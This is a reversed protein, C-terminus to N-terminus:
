ILGLVKKGLHKRRNTDPLTNFLIKRSLQEMKAINKQLARRNAVAQGLSAFQEPSLAVTITKRAVKRTWQYGSRPPHLRSRDLVSGQSIYGIRALRRRLQDYQRALAQSSTKKMATMKGKIDIWSLYIYKNHAFSREEGGPARAQSRELGGDLGDARLRQGMELAEEAGPNGLLGQSPLFLARAAAVADKGQLQGEPGKQALDEVRSGTAPFRHALDQSQKTQRSLVRHILLGAAVALSALAQGQRAQLLDQSADGLAGPPSARLRAQPPAALDLHDIAARGGHGVRGGMLLDERLLAHLLGAAAEGDHSQDAQEGQGGAAQDPNDGATIVVGFQAEEAPEPMEELRAVHKQGVTVEAVVARQGTKPVPADVGDHAHVLGAGLVKALAMIQSGAVPQDGPFFGGLAGASQAGPKPGAQRFDQGQAHDPHTAGGLTKAGAFQDQDGRQQVRFFIGGGFDGLEEQLAPAHFEEKAVEFRDELHFVQAALARGHHLLLEEHVQNAVIENAGEHELAGATMVRGQLAQAEFAADIGHAVVAGGEGLRFGFGFGRL